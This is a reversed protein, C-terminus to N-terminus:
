TRKKALLQEGGASLEAGFLSGERKQKKTKKKQISKNNM